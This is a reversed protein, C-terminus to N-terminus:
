RMKANLEGMVKDFVYDWSEPNRFVRVSPYWVNDYGMSDNGWRFDTERLPQLLWVPKGMTGAVHVISTDCSILLDLSNIYDATEAWNKPKLSTAGRVKEGGLSLNYLTGPLKAFYGSPISRNVNNVHTSSGGAVFGIRFEGSLERRGTWKFWDHAVMNDVSASEFKTALTCIPIAATAGSELPDRCIKYDSFFCDLEAPLQVWVEDCYDRLLHLYRGFMIKDGMGQEALVVIKEHRSIGDWFPIVRDVKVPNNRVFRYSYMKWAAATDVEERSCWKRLLANSYNWIADYHAPFLNLAAQYFEVAEDDDGRTYAQLGLNNIALPYHGGRGNIDLINENAAKLYAATASKHDQVLRYCNGLNLWAEKFEHERLQKKFLPIAKAPKGQELLKTATNYLM